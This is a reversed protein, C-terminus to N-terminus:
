HPSRLTLQFPNLPLSMSVAWERRDNSARLFVEQPPINTVPLASIRKRDCVSAERPTVKKARLTAPKGSHGGERWEPM